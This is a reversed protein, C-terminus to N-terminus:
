GTGDPIKAPDLRALTIQPAYEVTDPLFTVAAGIPTPDAAGDKQVSTIVWDGQLWRADPPVIAPHGGWNGMGVAAIIVIATWTRRAM